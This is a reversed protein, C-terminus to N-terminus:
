SRVAVCVIDFKRRLEIRQGTWGNATKNLTIRIEVGWDLSQKFQITDMDCYTKLNGAIQAGQVEPGTPTRGDLSYVIPKSGNLETLRLVAPTQAVLLKYSQPSEGAATRVCQYRGSFDPCALASVSTLLLVFLILKKM